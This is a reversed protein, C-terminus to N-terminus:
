GFEILIVEVKVKLLDTIGLFSVQGMWELCDIWVINLDKGPPAVIIVPNGPLQELKSKTISKAAPDWPRRLLLALGDAVIQLM